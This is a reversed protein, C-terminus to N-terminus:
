SYFDINKQSASRCWIQIVHLNLFIISISIMFLLSQYFFRGVSKDKLLSYDISNVLMSACLEGGRTKSVSIIYYFNGWYKKEEIYKTPLVVCETARTASLKWMSLSTMAIMM